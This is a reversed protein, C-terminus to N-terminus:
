KWLFPEPTLRPTIISALFRSFSNIEYTTHRFLHFFVQNLTVIRQCLLWFQVRSRSYNGFPIVIVLLDLLDERPITIGLLRLFMTM